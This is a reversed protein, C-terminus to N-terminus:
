FFKTFESKRPEDAWHRLMYWWAYCAMIAEGSMAAPPAYVWIAELLPVTKPWHAVYCSVTSGTWLLMGLVADFWLTYRTRANSYLSYLCSLGHVLFLTAWIQEPIFAMIAYTMRGKGQAIQEATPFLEIPLSLQLAWFLSGVGLGLRTMAMKDTVFIAKTKYKIYKACLSIGPM